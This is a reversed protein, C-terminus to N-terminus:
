CGPTAPAGGSVVQRLAEIEKSTLKRWAGEPLDANLRLPGFAARHLKLVTHGRALFMRKAQHFKGEQLLLVGLSKSRSASVIRLEAPKATFDSLSIGSGFAQVDETTLEGRVWAHYEKPVHRRPSLLRHALEGDNTLLLLGTADKDLRGVPLVKRRLFAAPLLSMVTAARSDRAATLVGAPKHLLYYQLRQDTVMEGAIAVSQANPDIKRAPNREVSGDVRVMGARLLKAAESRSREGSAALYKDM